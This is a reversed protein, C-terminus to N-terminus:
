HTRIRSGEVRRSTVAVGRWGCRSLLATHLQRFTFHCPALEFGGCVGRLCVKFLPALFFVFFHRKPIRHRGASTGRPRLRGRRVVYNGIRRSTSHPLVVLGWRGGGFCGLARPSAPFGVYEATAPLRGLYCLACREPVDFATPFGALNSLGRSVWAWACKSFRFFAFM